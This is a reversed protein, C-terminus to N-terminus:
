NGGWTDQFFIGVGLEAWIYSIILTLYVIYLTKNNITTLEYFIIVLSIFILTYINFFLFVPLLLSSIVLSYIHENKNM